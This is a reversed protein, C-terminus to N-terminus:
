RRYRRCGPELREEEGFVGARAMHEFEDATFLRRRLEVDVAM